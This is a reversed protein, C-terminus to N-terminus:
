ESWKIDRETEKLCELLWLLDRYLAWAKDVTLREKKNNISNIIKISQKKATGDVKSKLINLVSDCKTLTVEIEKKNTEFDGLGDNLKSSYSTISNMLEPIRAKLLYNRRIKNLEKLVYLTVLLGLVSCINAFHPFIAVVFDFISQLVKM